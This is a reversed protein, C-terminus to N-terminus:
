WLAVHKTNLVILESRRPDFVYRLRDGRLEIRVGEYDVWVNQYDGTGQRWVTAASGDETEVWSDDKPVLYQTKPAVYGPAREIYLIYSSAFGGTGDTTQRWPLRKAGTIWDIKQAEVMGSVRSDKSWISQPIKTITVSYYLKQATTAPMLRDTFGALGTKNLTVKSELIKIKDHSNQVHEEDFEAIEQASGPSLVFIATDFDRGSDPCPPTSYENTFDAPLAEFRTGDESTGLIRFSDKAPLVRPRWGADTGMNLWDGNEFYCSWSMSLQHPKDDVTFLVHYTYNRERVVPSQPCGSLIVASATM